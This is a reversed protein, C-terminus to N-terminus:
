QYFFTKKMIEPSLRKKVKFLETALYQFNKM